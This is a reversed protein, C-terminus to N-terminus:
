RAAGRLIGDRGWKRIPVGRLKIEDLDIVPKGTEHITYMNEAEENRQQHETRMAGKLTGTGVTYSGPKRSRVDSGTVHLGPNPDGRDVKM